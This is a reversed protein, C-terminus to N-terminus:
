HLLPIHQRAKQSLISAFGLHFRQNYLVQFWYTRSLLQKLTALLFLRDVHHNDSRNRMGTDTDHQLISCFRIRTASIAFTDAYSLLLEQLQKDVESSLNVDSVTANYLQLIHPLLNCSATCSTDSEGRSNRPKSYVWETEQGSTTFPSNFWAGKLKRPRMM